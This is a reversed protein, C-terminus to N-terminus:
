WSPERKLSDGPLVSVVLNKGWRLPRRWRSPPRAPCFDAPMVWTSPPADIDILRGGSCSPLCLDERHHCNSCFLAASSSIGSFSRSPKYRGAVKRPLRSILKRARKLISMLRVHIRYVNGRWQKMRYERGNKSTKAVWTWTRGVSILKKEEFRRIVNRVQRESLGWLNMLYSQEAGRLEGAESFIQIFQRYRRRDRPKLAKYGSDDQVVKSLRSRFKSTEPDAQFSNLASTPAGARTASASTSAEDEHAVALVHVRAACVQAQEVDQSFSERQRQNAEM